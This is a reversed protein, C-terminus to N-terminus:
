PREALAITIGTVVVLVIATPSDDGEGGAHPHVGAQQYRQRATVDVTTGHPM